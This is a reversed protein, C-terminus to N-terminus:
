PNHTSDTQHTLLSRYTLDMGFAGLPATIIALVALFILALSTLM